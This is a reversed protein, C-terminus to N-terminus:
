GKYLNAKPPCSGRVPRVTATYGIVQLLSTRFGFSFHITKATVTTAM